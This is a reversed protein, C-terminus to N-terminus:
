SIIHSITALSLSLSTYVHLFSSEGIEALRRQTFTAVRLHAKAFTRLLRPM